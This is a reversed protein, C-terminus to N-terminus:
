IKNSKHYFIYGKFARSNKIEDLSTQPFYHLLNIKLFYKKKKHIRSLIDSESPTISFRVSCTKLWTRYTNLNNKNQMNIKKKNSIYSNRNKTM